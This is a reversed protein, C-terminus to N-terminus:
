RGTLFVPESLGTAIVRGQLAFAASAGGALAAGVLAQPAVRRFFAAAPALRCWTGLSSM